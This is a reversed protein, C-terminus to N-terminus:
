RGFRRNIEGIAIKGTAEVVKGVIPNVLVSTVAGALQPLNKEFWNKVYDLTTLDPQEAVVAQELEDVRETASAKKDPPSQAEVLSKLQAFLGRVAELDTESIKNDSRNIINKGVIIGQNHGGGIEVNINDGGVSKPTNTQKAM